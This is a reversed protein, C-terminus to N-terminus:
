LKLLLLLQWILKVKIVWVIVDTIVRRFSKDYDTAVMRQDELPKVNEAQFNNLTIKVGRIIQKYNNRRDDFGKRVITLTNSISWSKRKEGLRNLIYLLNFDAKTCLSLRNNKFKVEKDAKNHITEFYLNQMEQPIKENELKMLIEQFLGHFNDFFIGFYDNKNM